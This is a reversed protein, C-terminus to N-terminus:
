IASTQFTEGLARWYFTDGLVSAWNGFQFAPMDQGNAARLWFSYAFIFIIPAVLLFALSLLAPSLLLYPRSEAKVM